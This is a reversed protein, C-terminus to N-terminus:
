WDATITGRQPPRTVRRQWETQAETFIDALNPKNPRLERLSSILEILSRWYVAEEELLSLELDSTEDTVEVFPTRYTIRIKHSTNQPRTDHYFRIEGGAERYDNTETYNWPATTSLSEEVKIIDSVGSPLTYDDKDPDIVLATNEALRPLVQRLAENIASVTLDIRMNNDCVAYRDAAVWSASFDEFTLKNAPSTKVRKSKGSNSGSLAWVIGGSFDGMGTMKTDSFQKKDTATVVLTVTSEFVPTIKKALRLSLSHITAM